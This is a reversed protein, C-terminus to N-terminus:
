GLIRLLNNDLRERAKTKRWGTARITVAYRTNGEVRLLEYDRGVVHGRYTGKRDHAPGWPVRAGGVPPATSNAAQFVRMAHEDVLQRVGVSKLLAGVAKRNPRYRM